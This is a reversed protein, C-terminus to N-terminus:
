GRLGGAARRGRLLWRLAYALGPVQHDPPGDVVVSLSQDGIYRTFSLHEYGSQALAMFEPAQALAQGADRCDHCCGTVLSEHWVGYPKDHGCVMCSGHPVKECVPCPVRGDDGIGSDFCWRCEPVAADPVKESANLRADQHLASWRRLIARNIVPWGDWMRAYQRAFEDRSAFLAVWEDVMADDEDGDPLEAASRFSSNSM